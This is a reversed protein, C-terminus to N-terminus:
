HPHKLEYLSCGMGINRAPNQPDYFVLVPMDQFLSRSYDHANTRMPLIESDAFEYRIRSGLSIFGTGVWVGQYRQQLVRGLAPRGSAFLRRHSWRQRIVNANAVAAILLLASAPIMMRYLFVLLLASGMCSLGLGIRTWGEWSIRVARPTALALFPQFEQEALFTWNPADPSAIRSESQVIRRYQLWSLLGAMTMGAAAILYICAVFTKSWADEQESPWRMIIAVFCSFWVLGFAPVVLAFRKSAAQARQMKWGCKACYPAGFFPPVIRCLAGCYPCLVRRM